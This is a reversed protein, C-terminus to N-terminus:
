QDLPYNAVVNANAGAGAHKLQHFSSVVGTDVNLLRAFYTYNVGGGSGGVASTVQSSQDIDDTWQNYISSSDGNTYDYQTINKTNVGFVKITQGVRWTGINQAINETNETYNAATLVIKGTGDVALGTARYVKDDGSVGFAALNNVDGTNQTFYELATGAANVRM